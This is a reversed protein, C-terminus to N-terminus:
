RAANLEGRLKRPGLGEVLPRRGICVLVIDAQLTEAAGGKAPEVTLSVGSDTTEAKTVKSSLKFKLGQRAISRQFQKTIEDEVWPKVLALFLFVKAGSGLRRWVSGL